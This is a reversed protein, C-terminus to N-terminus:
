DKPVDLINNGRIRDRCILICADELLALQRPEDTIFQSTVFGREFYMGEAVEVTTELQASEELLVVGDSGARRIAEEAIKGSLEDGLGATVAVGLAQGDLLPKSQAQVSRVAAEVAIDMEHILDRLISGEGLAAFGRLVLASFLLAVVKSGDGLEGAAERTV